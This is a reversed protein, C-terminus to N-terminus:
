HSVKCLAVAVTCQMSMSWIHVYLTKNENVVGVTYKTQSCTICWICSPVLPTEACALLEIRTFLKFMQLVMQYM